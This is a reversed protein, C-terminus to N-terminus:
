FISRFTIEVAGTTKELKQPTKCSSVSMIIGTVATTILLSKIKM